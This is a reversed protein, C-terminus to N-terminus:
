IDDKYIKVKGNKLLNARYSVKKSRGNVVLYGQILITMENFNLNERLIGVKTKYLRPEFRKITNESSKEIFEISDNMSLNINNLDVKGYDKSIEASGANTSFIRSLNNAISAYLAEEKSDFQKDDFSSSLREFLSGKYM